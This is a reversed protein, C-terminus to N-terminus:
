WSFQFVTTRTLTSIKQRNANLNKRSYKSQTRKRKCIGGALNNGSLLHFFCFKHLNMHLSDLQGDPNWYINLFFHHFMYFFVVCALFLPVGVTERVECAWALKGWTKEVGSGGNFNFWTYFINVNSFCVHKWFKDAYLPRRGEDGSKPTLITRESRDQTVFMWSDFSTGGLRFEITGFKDIQCDSITFIHIEDSFPKTDYTVILFHELYLWTRWYMLYYALHIFAHLQLCFFIGILIDNVVAM